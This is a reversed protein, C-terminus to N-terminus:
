DKFCHNVNVEQAISSFYRRVYTKHVWSSLERLDEPVRGGGPVTALAMTVTKLLKATHEDDPVGRGVAAICEDLFKTLYGGSGDIVDWCMALIMVMCGDRIFKYQSDDLREMNLYQWYPLAYVSGYYLDGMIFSYEALQHYLLCIDREIEQVLVWDTDSGGRHHLDQYQRKIKMERELWCYNSQDALSHAIRNASRNYLGNGGGRRAFLRYLLQRVHLLLSDPRPFQGYDERQSGTLM